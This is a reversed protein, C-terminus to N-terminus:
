LTPPPVIRRVQMDTELVVGSPEVTGTIPAAAIPYPSAALPIHGEATLLGSTADLGIWGAGPLFAEAWAHLDAVDPTGDDPIQILYGSVFRAAVGHMRLLQILLWASDRCSGQAEALTRDPNWVGPEMRVIYAVRNRVRHTLELILGITPTAPAPTEDRLAQLLPGAHDARHFYSLDDATQPDYRFPWSEAGPELLFNFPDQPTLDAILDVVVDLAGVPGPLVVRALTNGHPDQQWHLTQPAPDIRLTYSPIPTRAHPMPRLRISQPGLLVPRDYRYSTRHVLGILPPM